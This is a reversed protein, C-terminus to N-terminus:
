TGAGRLQRVGLTQPIPLFHKYTGKTSTYVESDYASNIIIDSFYLFPYPSGGSSGNHTQANYGTNDGLTFGSLSCGTSFTGTTSSANGDIYFTLNGTTGNYELAMHHWAEPWFSNDSNNGPHIVQQSNVGISSNVKWEFNATGTSTSGNARENLIWNYHTKMQFEKSNSMHYTFIAHWNWGFTTTYSSFDSPIDNSNSSGYSTIYPIFVWMSVCWDSLASPLTFNKNIGPTVKLSTKGDNRLVGAEFSGGSSFTRSSDNDDTITGDELKFRHSCSPFTPSTIPGSVTKTVIAKQDNNTVDLTYDGTDKIYITDQTQGLAYTSGNPDTLTGTRISKDYLYLEGIITAGGGTANTATINLKYRNYATTNGSVTYTATKSNDLAPNAATQTDVVTWTTGDNSGEMTWTGPTESTDNRARGQLKYSGLVIATPLTIRLEVPQPTNLTIFGSDSTPSSLSKNFAMDPYGLNSGSSWVTDDTEATYEGNGYSAGSITWVTTKNSNTRTVSSYTGDSPPWEKSESNFNSVTLKNYNDFTLSPSSLKSANMHSTIESLTLVSNFLKFDDVWGKLYNADTKCFKFGEDDDTILEDQQQLAFSISKVPGASLDEFWAQVRFQYDYFRVAGDAGGVVVFPAHVFM